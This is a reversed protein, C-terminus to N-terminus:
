LYSICAIELVCHETYMYVRPNRNSSVYPFAVYVACDFIIPPCDISM